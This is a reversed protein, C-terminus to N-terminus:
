LYMKNGLFTVLFGNKLARWHSHSSAKPGCYHLLNSIGAESLRKALVKVDSEQGIVDIDHETFGRNVLGGVIQLDLGSLNPTVQPLTLRPWKKGLLKTLGHGFIKSGLMCWKCPAVQYCHEHMIKYNM